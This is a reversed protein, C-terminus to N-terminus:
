DPSNKEPSATESLSTERSLVRDEVAADEVKRGATGTGTGPDVHEMITGVGCDASDGDEMDGSM